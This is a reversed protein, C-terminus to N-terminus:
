SIFIASFPVTSTTIHVKVNIYCWCHVRPQPERYLETASHKGIMCSVRHKTGPVVFLTLRLMFKPSQTITSGTLNILPFQYVMISSFMSLPLYHLFHPLHCFYGYRGRLEALFRFHIKLFSTQKKFIPLKFVPLQSFQFM